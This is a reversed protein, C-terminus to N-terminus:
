RVGSEGPASTDVDAEVSMGPRIQGALRGDNLVIKVPIRQVIKTFNGTANDSPLLSFELGSAPSISDVHARIVDGPFADVHLEVSDQAHMHTLQTEKFNAVVYVAQLPVVAMLANGPQAMQGVRVTRRGVVGNAPSTIATHELDLEAQTEVARAHALKGQALAVQTTLVATQRRAAQAAAQVRDLNAGAERRRAAAEQAVQESSYGVQALDGYRRDNISAISEAARAGTVTADAQAVIAGQTDLQARASALEATAIQVDSQAQAFAARYDRDDILALTQGARVRQNDQVMVAAVYGSVKPAIVTSDAQVYADDTSEIFRGYTWYRVGGIAAAAIVVVGGLWAALKKVSRRSQPGAVGVGRQATAEVATVM